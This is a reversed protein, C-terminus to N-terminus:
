QNFCRGSFIPIKKLDIATKSVLQLGLMCLVFMFLMTKYLIYFFTWKWIVINFDFM